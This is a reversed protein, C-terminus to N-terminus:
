PRALAFSCGSRNSGGAHPQEPARRELFRPTGEPRLSCLLGRSRRAKQNVRSPLITCVSRPLIICVSRPALSFAPECSGRLSLQRGPGGWGAGRSLEWNPENLPLGPLLGPHPPSLSPSSLCGCTRLAWNRARQGVTKDEGAGPEPAVGQGQGKKGCPNYAGWGPPIEKMEVRGKTLLRQAREGRPGRKPTGETGQWSRFSKGVNELFGGPSWGAERFWWSSLQVRTAPGSQWALPLGWPLRQLPCM